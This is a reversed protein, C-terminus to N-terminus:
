PAPEMVALVYRSTVRFASPDENAEEYLEVLQRRLDAAKGAAELVSGASVALPHNDSERDVFEEASASTFSIRHEQLSVDLGHPEFLEILAEREHWPFRPPPAPEGLTEAVAENILRVGRSITGEPVWAAVLMRGSPALVRAMEAAAAKPDPAFIVGFVSLVVDGEGTEVPMSAAEGLVFEADLDREEAATAAVALLRQAPDIGVAHAGREAALLAANGTGCGVDVVTEGPEPDATDVVVAAAPLLQEAIAEYSGQGWDV